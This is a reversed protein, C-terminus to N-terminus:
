FLFRSQHSSNNHDRFTISTYGYGTTKKASSDCVVVMDKPLFHNISLPTSNNLPEFLATGSPHGSQMVYPQYIDPTSSLTMDYVIDGDNLSTMQGIVMDTGGNSEWQM